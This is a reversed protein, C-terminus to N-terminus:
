KLKFTVETQCYPEEIHMSDWGSPMGSAVFQKSPDTFPKIESPSVDTLKKGNLPYMLEDFSIFQIGAKLCAQHAEYLADFKAQQAKTLKIEDFSPM